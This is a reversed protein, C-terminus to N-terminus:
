GEIAKHQQPTWTKFLAEFASRYDLANIIVLDSMWTTLTLTRSSILARVDALSLWDFSLNMQLELESQTLKDSVFLRVSGDPMDIGLMVWNPASLRSKGYSARAPYDTRVLQNM